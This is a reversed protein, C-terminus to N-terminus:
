CGQRKLEKERKRLTDEWDWLEKDWDKLEKKWVTQKPGTPKPRRPLPYFYLNKLVKIKYKKERKEVDEEWRWLESDWKWNGEEWQWLAKETM